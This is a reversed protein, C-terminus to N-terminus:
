QGRPNPPTRGARLCPATCVLRRPGYAARPADVDGDDEGLWRGLREEETGTLSALRDALVAKTVYLRKAAEAVDHQALTSGIEDVDPLLWRATAERVEREDRECMSRCPQGAVLHHMEHALTSRQQIWGLDHAIEVRAHGDDWVTQGWKGPLRKVYIPVLPFNESMAYWPDRDDRM